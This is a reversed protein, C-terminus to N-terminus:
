ARAEDLAALGDRVEAYMEQSLVQLETETVYGLFAARAAHLGATLTPSLGADEILGDPMAALNMALSEALMRAITNM